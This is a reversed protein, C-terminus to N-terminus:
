SERIRGHTETHGQATTTEKDSLQDKHLPSIESATNNKGTGADATKSGAGKELIDNGDEYEDMAEYMPWIEQDLESIIQSTDEVEQLLNDLQFGIEEPDSMTMSQEYIYRIADEITQLHTQCIMYKEKAAAFKNLRKKLINIRRQKTEKLKESSIEEIVQEEERIEEKLREELSEHVYSEYRSNVDLLTIYNSLLKEMKKRLSELLGQTSYPMKDFNEEILESLHKLVLFRKRDPEDLQQFRVKDQLENNRQKLKRLRVSKQFRPLRPITGLYVLELGFIMTFVLNPVMVMDTTFFAVLTGAFLSGLNVPHRFAERTFNIGKDESM